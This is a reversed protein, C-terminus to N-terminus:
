SQFHVSQNTTEVWRFFILWTPNMKGFYSHFYFINSVVVYVINPNSDVWSSCGRLLNKPPPFFWTGIKSGPWFINNWGVRPNGQFTGPIKVKCNWLVMMKKPYRQDHTFRHRASYFSWDNLSVDQPPGVRPSYFPVQLIMGILNNAM